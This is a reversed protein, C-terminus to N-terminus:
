HVSIKGARRKLAPQADDGLAPRETRKATRKLLGALGGGAPMDDGEDSDLPESTPEEARWGRQYRPRPKVLYKILKGEECAFYQLNTDSYDLMEECTQILWRAVAVGERGGHKCKRMEKYEALLKRLISRWRGGQVKLTVGNM